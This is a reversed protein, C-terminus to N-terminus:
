PRPENRAPRHYHVAPWPGVKSPTEFGRPRVSAAHVRATDASLRRLKSTRPRPPPKWWAPGVLVQGTQVNDDDIAQKASSSVPLPAARPEILKAAGARWWPTRGRAMCAQVHLPRSGGAWWDGRRHPLRSSPLVATGGNPPVISRRPGGRSRSAAPPGGRRSRLDFPNISMKFWATVLRGPSQWEPKVRIRV